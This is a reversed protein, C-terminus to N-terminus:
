IELYIIFIILLSLYLRNTDRDIEIMETPFPLSSSYDSCCSACCSLWDDWAQCPMYIHTRHILSCFNGAQLCVMGSHMGWGLQISSPLLPLSSIFLHYYILPSPLPLFSSHLFFLPLFLLLIVHTAPLLMAHWALQRHRRGHHPMVM